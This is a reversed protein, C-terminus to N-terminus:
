RRGGPRAAEERARALAGTLMPDGPLAELERELAAVYTDLRDGCCANARAYRAPGDRPDAAVARETEALWLRRRGLQNLCEWRGNRLYRADPHHALGADYVALAEAHRGLGQLARGLKQHLLPEHPARAVAEALPAVAENARGATLLVHALRVRADVNPPEAEIVARYEAVAGEVEGHLIRRDAEAMRRLSALAERPDRASRASARPAAGFSAYGLSELARRTQEDLVVPEGEGSELSSSLLALDEAMKRARDPQGSAVDRTEAADAGLDYLEDGVGSVLKWGGERLARLPACGHHIQAYLSEAYGSDRSWAIREGRLLPSLDRGQVGPLPPLGLLSLITPLVDVLHVPEAIAHEIRLGPARIVLPVRLTADHVLVGHAMEDHEGLGEGHDSTVVVLTRDLGRKAKWRDLLGGLARDAYAIEGDYPSVSRSAEPEPPRYPAHPDYLHVWAFVPRDGQAELWRAAAATVQEATREPYYQFPSAGPDPMEDDYTEFGQDLGYRSDLVEAGLFAGTAFGARALVEALTTEAAPLRHGGNDRVTHSPPQRGTLLSAHAPLTLPVPSIAQSFAAGERALADVNPTTASPSGTVCGFRDARATDITVLLVDRPKPPTARRCGAVVLLPVLLAVGLKRPRPGSVGSM